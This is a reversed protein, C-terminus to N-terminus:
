DIETTPRANHLLFTQYVTWTARVTELAARFRVSFERFQSTSVELMPIHERYLSLVFLTVQHGRIYVTKEVTELYLLGSIRLYNQTGSCASHSHTGILMAGFFHPFVRWV